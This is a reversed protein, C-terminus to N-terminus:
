TLFNKKQGTVSDHKTLEKQFSYLKQVDDADVFIYEFVTKHNSRFKIRDTTQLSDIKIVEQGQM